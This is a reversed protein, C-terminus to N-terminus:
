AAPDQVVPDSPPTEPQGCGTCVGSSYSHGTAPIIDNSIVTTCSTCTVKCVNVNPHIKAKM